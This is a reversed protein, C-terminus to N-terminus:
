EKVALADAYQAVLPKAIMVLANFDRKLEAYEYSANALEEALETTENHLQIRQRQVEHLETVAIKTQEKERALEAGMKELDDRYQQALMKYSADDEKQETKAIPEIVPEAVIAKAEAVVEKKKEVDDLLGQKKWGREYQKITSLKLGLDNSLQEITVGQAMKEKFFGVTLKATRTMEVDGKSWKKLTQPEVGWKRAIETLTCGSAAMQEFEEQTCFYELYEHAKFETRIIEEREEAIGLEERIAEIEANIQEETIGTVDGVIVATRQKKLQRIRKKLDRERM